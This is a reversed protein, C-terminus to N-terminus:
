DLSDDVPIAVALPDRTTKDEANTLTFTELTRKSQWQM